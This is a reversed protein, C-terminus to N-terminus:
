SFYRTSPTAWSSCADAARAIEPQPAGADADLFRQRKGAYIAFFLQRSYVVNTYQLTFGNHSENPPLTKRDYTRVSYRGIRIENERRLSRREGMAGRRVRDRDIGRTTM